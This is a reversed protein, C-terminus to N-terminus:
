TSIYSITREYLKIIKSFFHGFLHQQWIMILAVLLAIFAGMMVDFPYHVGVFIRSLAMFFALILFVCGAKRKKWFLAIAFAFAGAAHNSPFSPDDNTKDVLTTVVHNVFPRERFVTMEILKNIGMAFVVITLAFLVLQRNKKVDGKRTFWLWVFPLGFLIPGYKTFLLVLQDVWESQGAFQNVLEFLKFDITNM